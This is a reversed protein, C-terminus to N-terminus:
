EFWREVFAHEPVKTKVEFGVARLHRQVANLLPLPIKEGQGLRVELAVHHGAEGGEILLKKGAPALRNVLGLLKQMEGVPPALRVQGRRSEQPRVLAGHTYLLELFATARDAVETLLLGNGNAGGSTDFVETITKSNADM